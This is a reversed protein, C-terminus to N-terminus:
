WVNPHGVKSWKKVARLSAQKGGLSRSRIGYVNASGIRSDSFEPLVAVLFYGSSVAKSVLVPIVSPPSKGAM